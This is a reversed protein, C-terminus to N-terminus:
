ADGTHYRALSYLNMIDDHIDTEWFSVPRKNPALLQSLKDHRRDKLNEANSLLIYRSGKYADERKECAKKKEEVRAIELVLEMEGNDRGEGFDLAVM